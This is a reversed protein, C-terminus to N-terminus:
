LSLDSRKLLIKLRHELFFRVTNSNAASFIFSQQASDANVNALLYLVTMANGVQVAQDRSNVECLQANFRPEYNWFSEFDARCTLFLKQLKNFIHSAVSLLDPKYVADVVRQAGDDALLVENRIARSADKARGFLIFM